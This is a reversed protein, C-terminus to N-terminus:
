YGKIQPSKKDHNDVFFSFIFPALFVLVIIGFFVAPAYDYDIM